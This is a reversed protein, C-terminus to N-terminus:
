RIIMALGRGAMSVTIAVVKETEGEETMVKGMVKNVHWGKPAVIESFDGTIGDTASLVTFTGGHLDKLDCNPELVLKTDTENIAVTGHVVLADSVLTKGFTLKLTSHAGFTVPHSLDSRGVTLVGNIHKGTADDITGPWITATATENGVAVLRVYDGKEVAGSAAKFETDIGGITGFGGLTAGGNVHVRSYGTGSGSANDVLLTGAYVTTRGQEDGSGGGYRNAGTLRVVGAGKKDIGDRPDWNPTIVGNVSLTKGAAAEFTAYCARNHAYQYQIYVPCDITVPKEATEGVTVAGYELDLRYANKSILTGNIVLDQDMGAYAYRRQGLDLTGGADVTFQGVQSQAIWHQGASGDSSLDLFGNRLVHVPRKNTDFPNFNPAASEAKAVAPIDSGGVTLGAGLQRNYCFLLTGERVETTGIARDSNSGALWVRGAGMKVLSARGILNGIKLTKGEPVSWTGVDSGDMLNFDMPSIVNEEAASEAIEVDLAAVNELRLAHPTTITIKKAKAEGDGPVVTLPASVRAGFLVCDDALPVAGSSWNKPDTWSTGNGAGTWEVAPLVGVRLLLPVSASGAIGKLSVSFYYRGAALDTIEKSFAGTVCDAIEYTRENAAETTGVSIVVTVKDENEGLQVNGTVMVKAEDAASVISTVEVTSPITETTLFGADAMAQYEAKVREPSPIGNYIRLEDMTGAINSDTAGDTKNYGGMMLTTGSLSAANVSGSTTMPQGNRYIAGEKLNLVATYHTWTEKQFIEDNAAAYVIQATSNDGRLYIGSDKVYLLEMGNQEYSEKTSLIRVNINNATPRMWASLACKSQNVLGKFPDKIQTKPGSVGKGIFGAEAPSSNVNTYKGSDSADGNFHVVSVYDSWAYLNDSAYDDTAGWHMTFAGGRTAEKVCVWVLAQTDTWTDVEYPLAEDDEGQTFALDAHDDRSFAVESPNFRVLVPLRKLMVGEDLGAIKFEQHSAFAARDITKIQPEGFFELEAIQAYNQGTQADVVAQIYFRYYRYATDNSFAYYRSSTQDWGTEETCAHLDKWKVKDNSGQFVWKKPAREAVNYGGVPLYVKYSSIVTPETFDYGFDVSTVNVIARDTNDFKGSDDFANAFDLRKQTENNLLWEESNPKVLSFAKSADSTTLDILGEPQQVSTNAALLSASTLVTALAVAFKLTQFM